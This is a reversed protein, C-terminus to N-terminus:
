FVKEVKGLIPVPKIINVDLWALLSAPFERVYEDWWMISPHQDARVGVADVGLNNCLYLARPLHFQQTVIMASDQQFIHKLRYCSDYTRRGAYDLILDQEPIGKALLFRKMAEPENYEIARNDGSLIIKKVKGKNYLTKAIVLRDELVTNPQKSRLSAGLVLAVPKSSSSESTFISRRYSFQVVIVAMIMLFIIMCGIGFVIKKLLSM